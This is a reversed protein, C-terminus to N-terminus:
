KKRPVLYQNVFDTENSFIESVEVKGQLKWLEWGEPIMRIVIGDEGSKTVVRLKPYKGGDAREVSFFTLFVAITIAWILFIQLISKM